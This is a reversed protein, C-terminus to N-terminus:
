GEQGHARRKREEQEQRVLRGLEQVRVRASAVAAKLREYENWAVEYEAWVDPTGSKTDWVSREEALAGL